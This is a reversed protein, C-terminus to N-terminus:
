ALALREMLESQKKFIVDSLVVLTGRVTLIPVRTPFRRRTKMGFESGPCVISNVNSVMVFTASTAKRNASRAGAM